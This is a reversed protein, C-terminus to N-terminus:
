RVGPLMAMLEATSTGFSTAAAIAAIGFILKALTKLM